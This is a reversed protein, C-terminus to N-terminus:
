LCLELEVATGPEVKSSVPVQLKLITEKESKKKFSNCQSCTYTTEYEFDFAKTPDCAHLAKEGKQM